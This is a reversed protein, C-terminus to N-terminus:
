KRQLPGWKKHLSPNQTLFLTWWDYSTHKPQPGVLVSFHKVRGGGLFFDIIKVLFRKDRSLYSFDLFILCKHWSLWFLLAPWNPTQRMERSILFRCLPPKYWKFGSEVVGVGVGVCMIKDEKPFNFVKSSIHLRPTM